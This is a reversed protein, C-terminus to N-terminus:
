TDAAVALERSGVLPCPGPHLRVSASGRHQVGAAGASVACDRVSTGKQSVLVDPVFLSRSRLGAEALGLLFRAWYLQHVNEVFGNLTAIIGWSILIRAIWIRAGIKHLLLNSPVEFLFYGIFFIGTLLGFQESTIALDRNMTLAAIGINVRDLYCIVYLVFLFPLIRLRVKRITQTGIPITALQPFAAM